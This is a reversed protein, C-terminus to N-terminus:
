KADPDLQSVHFVARFGAQEFHRDATLADAVREDTMVVFSVCDTLSWAKDSRSRYLELGRELLAASVARVTTDVSRREALILDAAKSRLSGGAFTNAVEFLVADTTIAHGDLTRHYNLIRHHWEDRPNLLAVYYFTDIFRRIM